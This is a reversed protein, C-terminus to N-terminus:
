GQIVEASVAGGPCAVKPLTATSRQVSTFLAYLDGYTLNACAPIHTASRALWPAATFMEDARSIAKEIDSPTVNRSADALMQTAPHAGTRFPM